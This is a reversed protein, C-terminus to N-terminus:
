VVDSGEPEAETKSHKELAELRAARTDASGSRRQAAGLPRGGSTPFSTAAEASTSGGFSVDRISATSSAQGAPVRNSTSSFLGVSGGQISMFIL